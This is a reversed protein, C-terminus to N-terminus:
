RVPAANWVFDVPELEIVSGDSGSVTILLPTKKTRDFAKTNTTQTCGASFRNTLLFCSRRVQGAGDFSFKLM